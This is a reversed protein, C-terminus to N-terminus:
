ATVQQRPARPGDIRDMPDGMPVESMATVFKSIFEDSREEVIIYRKAAICAQGNNQVRATVALPITRSMDASPAVVFPDSGGLELVCKKLYRGALEGVSRGARESGTLTVGVVRPDAIIAEVHETEVFLNTFVGDGFGARAFLNEIYRACGPVNPAHKMLVVNGAMLNPVAFRVVQWLPFNWPMIALIPGTPEYRVGSRSASTTVADSALMAAAHEGFYRMTMACKAAEGKAAGFTKGMERTMIEAVVPIEGELLEACRIMLHRREDFDVDRWRVFARSATEIAADIANASLSEYREMVEETTPNVALFTM